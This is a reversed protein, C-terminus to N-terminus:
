GLWFSKAAERSATDRSVGIDKLLHDDLLALEALQRRRGRRAIWLSFTATLKSRLAALQRARHRAVLEATRRLSPTPIASFWQSM